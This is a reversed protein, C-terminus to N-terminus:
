IIIIITQHMFSCVCVRASALQSESAKEREGEGQRAKRKGTKGKRGERGEREGEKEKEGERRLLGHLSM